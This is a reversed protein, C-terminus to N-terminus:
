SARPEERGPKGTPILVSYGRDRAVDGIGAIVLNTMPDALCRAGERRAALFGITTTRSSRLSRAIPLGPWWGLRVARPRREDRVVVM